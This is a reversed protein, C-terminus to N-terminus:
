KIGAFFSLWAKQKPTRVANNRIQEKKMNMKLLKNSNEGEILRFYSPGTESAHFDLIFSPEGYPIKNETCYKKLKEQEFENNKYWKMTELIEDISITEYYVFDYLKIHYNKKHEHGCYNQSAPSYGPPLNTITNTFIGYSINVFLDDVPDCDCGWSLHFTIDDHTFGYKKCFKEIEPVIKDKREEYYKQADFFKELELKTGTREYGSRKIEFSGIQLFLNLDMNTDGIGQIDDIMVYEPCDLPECIKKGDETTVIHYGSSNLNGEKLEMKERELEYEMDEEDDFNYYVIRKDTFIRTGFRIKINYAAGM